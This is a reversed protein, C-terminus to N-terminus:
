PLYNEIRNVQNEYSNDLAFGIRANMKEVANYKSLNNVVREFNALFEERAGSLVVLHEKDRYEMIETAVIVRGSALYEMVKHPNSMQEKDEVKYALILVDFQTLLHPIEASSVAGPFFSNTADLLEAPPPNFYQSSTQALNSKGLPGIFYFSKDKHSFVLERILLWDIYRYTLNGVYGIKISETFSISSESVGETKPAQVGHNVKQINENYERLKNYISDTTCFVIDATKALIDRSFVQNLDVLHAIKLVDRIQSLNFFRSPDFNWVVDFKVGLRREIKRFDLRIFYAALFYPMRAYGRFSPKYDLIFLNEEIEKKGWETSPSNLFYVKNGRRSLEHAYHHKSVKHDGWPEPSILLINCNRLKM